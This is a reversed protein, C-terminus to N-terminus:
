EADRPALNLEQLALLAARQEADKKNPAWASPFRRSNIVVAVEFCKSHDPGKEDLAEYRPTADMHKQAHQQLFSKFNEKDESRAARDIYATIRPLVFQKAAAFGGDLYLAAVIAEYVGARVSSPVENNESMGKGLRLLESLGLGDAIRACIKRSVVVSKIKTMEGEHKDPFRNFLEECVIVGLVADGLFELREYSSLRNDALSAHTVGAILLAPNQFDHGTIERARDLLETISVVISGAPRERFERHAWAGRPNRLLDALNVNRM